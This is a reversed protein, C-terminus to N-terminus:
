PEAMREIVNAAERILNGQSNEQSYALACNKWTAKDESILMKELTKALDMDTFVSPLVIGAKAKEIHEAYGCRATTLVPLGCCLAELLVKGAAEQYAPHLFLDAAFMYEFVNKKAGLFQVRQHVKFKKALRLYSSADDGGIIMLHTKELLPFPLKSLARLARDVGKTKFASCVMLVLSEDAKIKLGERIEQATNPNKVSPFDPPLVYFREDATQYIKQYCRKQIEALALIKTTAERQFVKKELAAYARYRSMLRYFLGHKEYAQEVYCNDSAFYVDIGPIKNFSVIIQCGLEKANDIVKKSFRSMRRHNTLGKIKMLNVSLNEPIEGVWETTFVEVSYKKSLLMALQLFDRQLGGYPFYKFLCLGINMM